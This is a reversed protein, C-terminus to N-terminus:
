KLVNYNEMIIPKASGDGSTDVDLRDMLYDRLEKIDKFKSVQYPLINAYKEVFLIGKDTKICIGGHDVFVQSDEPYHLFANIMTVKDNNGFDIGRNKWEKVITQSLVNVDQTNKVDIASYLSKFKNIEEKTFNSMPNNEIADMDLMLNISENPYDKTTLLEKYISFATLRCNFDSYGTEISDMKEFLPLKDYPVQLENITTFGNKSTKLDKLSSKNNYDKVLEIFYQADEKKIKNEILINKVEEQTKDDILNSYILSNKNTTIDEKDTVDKKSCATLSLAGITILTTIKKNHQM